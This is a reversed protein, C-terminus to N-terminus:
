HMAVEYTVDMEDGNCLRVKRLSILVCLGNNVTGGHKDGRLEELVGHDSASGWCTLV